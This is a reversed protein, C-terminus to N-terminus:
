SHTSNFYRQPLLNTIDSLLSIKSAIDRNRQSDLLNRLSTSNKFDAPLLQHRLELHFRDFPKSRLTSRIDSEDGLHLPGPQYPTRLLSIASQFQHYSTLISRIVLSHVFITFLSRRFHIHGPCQWM